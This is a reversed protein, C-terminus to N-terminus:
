KTTYVAAEYEAYWAEEEKEQEKEKERFQRMEEMWVLSVEPNPGKMNAASPGARIGRAAKKHGEDDDILQIINRGLDYLRM